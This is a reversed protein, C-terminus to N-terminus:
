FSNNSLILTVQVNYLTYIKVKKNKKKSNFSFEKYLIRQIQLTYLNQPIVNKLRYCYKGKRSNQRGLYKYVFIM